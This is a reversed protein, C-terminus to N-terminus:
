RYPIGAGALPLDCCHDLHSQRHLHPSDFGRGTVGFGSKESRLRHNSRPGAGVVPPNGPVKGANTNGSTGM